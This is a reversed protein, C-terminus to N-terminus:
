GQVLADLQCREEIHHVDVVTARREAKERIRATPLALKEDRDREPSRHPDRPEQPLVRRLPQETKRQAEDEPPREPVDDVANEIPRNHVEEIKMREPPVPGCEVHRVHRDAAAGNQQYPVRQFRSVLSSRYLATRPTAVGAPIIRLEMSAKDAMCTRRALGRPKQAPTSRAMSM